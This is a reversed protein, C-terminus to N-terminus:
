YCRHSRRCVEKICSRTYLFVGALM